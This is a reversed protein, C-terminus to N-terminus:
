VKWTSLARVATEHRQQVDALDHESDIHKQADAFAMTAHRLLSARHQEDRVHPAMEGLVELLRIIVAVSGRGFQRIQNFAADTVGQFTTIPTLIRLQGASDYREPGPLGERAIRCIASALADLCNMATFPDNVGPSLARVAIEVMQDIAFEVDQEPTRQSGCIFAAELRAVVKPDLPTSPWYQLVTTGFIVHDGARVALQLVRNESQAIEMLTAFDVAQVYGDCHVVVSCADGIAFSSRIAPADQSSVPVATGIQEGGLRTIVRDLDDAVVQLVAPAQLSASVHHIFFILMAISAGALIVGVTVSVQPVFASGGGTGESHVTRLVLLCYLFTSVFTGLVIQNATDRMFNRLMRPGFQNSAQSLAAITISFAVSAVTMVSGAVTSLLLRAGDAGGGYTWSIQRLIAFDARDVSLLGFALVIAVLSMSAPVFWYGTTIIDWLHLIRTRM